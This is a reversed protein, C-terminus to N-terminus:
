KDATFSTQNQGQCVDTQAHSTRCEPSQPSAGQRCYLHMMVCLMNSKTNALIVGDAEARRRKYNLQPRNQSCTPAANPLWENVPTPIGEQKITLYIRLYSRNIQLSRYALDHGATREWTHPMLCSRVERSYATGWLSSLLPCFFAAGVRCLWTLASPSSTVNEPKAACASGGHCASSTCLVQGGELLQRRSSFRVEAAGRSRHPLPQPLGLIWGSAKPFQKEWGPCARCILQNCCSSTPAPWTCWATHAQAQHCEDSHIEKWSESLLISFLHKTNGTKNILLSTKAFIDPPQGQTSLGETLGKELQGPPANAKTPESLSIQQYRVRPTRRRVGSM